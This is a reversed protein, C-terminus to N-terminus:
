WETGIFHCLEYRSRVFDKQFHCLSAKVSMRGNLIIKNDNNVLKEPSLIQSHLVHSTVSMLIMRDHHTCESEVSLGKENPKTCGTFCIDIYM